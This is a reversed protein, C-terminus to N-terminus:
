YKLNNKRFLRKIYEIINEFDAKRDRKEIELNRELDKIRKELSNLSQQTERDM